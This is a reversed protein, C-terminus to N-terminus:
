FLLYLLYIIGEEALYLTFLSIIPSIDMIGVTPVLQRFPTLYPEVVRALYYGLVSERLKPVWTLLIYGFIMFTYIQLVSRIIIEVTGVM